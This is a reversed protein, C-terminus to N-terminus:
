HATVSTQLRAARFAVLALCCLTSPVDLHQGSSWHHSSPATFKWTRVRGCPPPNLTQSVEAQQLHRFIDAVYEPCSLLSADADIDPISPQAPSLQSSALAVDGASFLHCHSINAIYLLAFVLIINCFTRTRASSAAM